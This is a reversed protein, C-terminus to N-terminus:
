NSQVEKFQTQLGPLTVYLSLVRGKGNKQSVAGLEIQPSKMM